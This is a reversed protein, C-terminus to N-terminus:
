TWAAMSLFRMLGEVLYYDGFILDSNVGRGQALFYCGGRLLGRAEPQGERSITVYDRCLNGLLREGENQWVRHEQGTTLAALALLAAGAIAQASTDKPAQHGRPDAFDYPVVGDPPLHALFYRAMAAVYEKFYLQGTFKYVQTLGYIGWAQGRSWCSAANYGQLTGKEKVAGTHPDFWVVQYTSGDERVFERTITLATQWGVDYFLAEGTLEYAWFLLRLNMATDVIAYGAREPDGLAGHAQIFRGAPNFRAALRRAAALAAPVMENNGTLASELVCSHYFLFGLDHDSFDAKQAALLRTYHRAWSLYQEDHSWAYLWWLIGTWFGETWGGNRAWAGVQPDYYDPFDDGLLSVLRAVQRLWGSLLVHVSAVKLRTVPLSAKETM